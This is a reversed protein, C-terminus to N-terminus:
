DEEPPLARGAATIGCRCNIIESARGRPDLPHRLGNAFQQDIPIVTNHLAIHSARVAGDQSSKWRIKTVGSAKYQAFKAGIHSSATETRAITAARAENTGFVRRLDETLAPLEDKILVRLAAKGEAEALGKGIVQRMKDALRSTVGEVLKIQQSSLAELVATDSLTLLTGGVEGHAGTLSAAWIDRMAVRVAREFKVSWEAQDLLMADFAEDSLNEPDFQDDLIDRLSEAVLARGGNAIRRLKALQADGYQNLWKLTRAQFLELLDQIEPTYARAVPLGAARGQLGDPSDEPGGPGNPEEAGENSRPQDSVTAPAARGEAAPAPEEPATSGEIVSALIARARPLDLPFSAVIVQEAAAKPMEGMSVALVLDKLQAVQAGNLSESPMASQEGEEQAGLETLNTAVFKREGDEFPEAELGLRVLMENASIGAGIAAVDAALKLKESVDERLVEIGSTDFSPVLDSSGPMIREFRTLLKGRVVDATLEALALIGNPGTWMERHATDVNNMTANDYVGVVPPPVGLAALISDRLWESLSQYAMDSPKVPNPIFKAGRDLVKIRRANEANGFEDEAAAQRREMEDIHLKEEFILFGGPDGNNRVAGDMYRFAQFYLDVERMVGRVDGLGRVLNYPDYDRFQIVAARPWTMSDGGSKVAYRYAVPWGSPGAKHEVLEGRVPIIQAPLELLQDTAEDVQIPAGQANALFWFSEGDLKFNTAHAQWLERGTMHMNPQQLLRLLPHDEVAQSDEGRPDGDWFRLPLRQFGSAIAKVGARVWVNEEYPRESNERQELSTSLSLIRPSDFMGGGRVSVGPYDGGVARGDDSFFRGGGGFMAPDPLVLGDSGPVSRVRM